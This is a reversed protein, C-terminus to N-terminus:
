PSAHRAMAERLTEISPLGNPFARCSLAPADAPPQGFLDAGKVLITPAGWRLRPDDPALSELDVPTIAIPMDTTAADLRARLAPSNPCSSFQLFEVPM